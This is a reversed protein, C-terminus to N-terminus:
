VSDIKEDIFKSHQHISIGGFKNNGILSVHSLKREKTNKFCFLTNSFKRSGCFESVVIKM